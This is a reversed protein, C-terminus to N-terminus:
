EKHLKKYHEIAAKALSMGLISCRTLCQEDPRWAHFVTGPTDGKNEEEPVEVNVAGGEKLEKIIGNYGYPSWGYSGFVAVPLGKLIGLTKLVYVYNAITPLVATNLIPSGFAIGTVDSAAVIIESIDSVNPNIVQVDVGASVCGAELARGMKETSGYMSDFLILIRKSAAKGESFEKYYTLVKNIGEKTRWIIGHAPCITEINLGGFKPLTTFIVHKFPTLITTTYEIMARTLVDQKVDDDFRETSALHQGFADSSFLIGEEEIFTMMSEPWHLMPTTFFKLTRKGISLTDGDKVEKTPCSMKGLINTLNRMGVSSTILTASPLHPMVDFASGAHDLELHNLILYKIKKLDIISSLMEIYEHSFKTHVTDIVTIYEDMILYSNYSSGQPTDYGHFRDLTWDIVGIWYIGEKVKKIQHIPPTAQNTVQEKGKGDM